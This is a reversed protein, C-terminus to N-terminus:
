LAKVTIRTRKESYDGREKVAGECRTFDPLLLQNEEIL